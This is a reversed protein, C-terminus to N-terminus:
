VFEIKGWSALNNRFIIVAGEVGKISRAFKIAKELDAKGQVLNATATAAADALVANKAMIVACDANGFSVSHGITGSSACIGLPTEQPKIKLNLGSLLKKKGAFLGVKIPRAVKLFIDGGNEIIVAKAGKRLLDRGVYKAIAGAVTAMPGVNAKRSCAAMERVIRAASFEVALPKLATLFKEDKSIYTEIQQRYKNVRATVYKEDIPKDCLIELDTEQVVVKKRFLNGSYVWNRYIRKQYKPSKM